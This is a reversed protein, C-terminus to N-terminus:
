RERRYIRGLEDNISPALQGVLVGSDLVIDTDTPLNPLYQNLVSYIAELVSQHTDLEVKRTNGLQAQAKSYDLSGMIADNVGEMTDLYGVGLGEAMYKGIDQFEESPSHIKLVKRVRKILKNSVKDSTELLSKLNGTLGKEIGKIVNKGAGKGSKNLNKSISAMKESYNDRLKNIQKVTSERIEKIQQNTTKKLEKNEEIAQKKALKNRKKYYKTYEKIEKKSLSNFAQVTSLGQVGMDEIEKYLKSNGLKKKLEKLGKMWDEMATSQSKMNFVLWDAQVNDDSEFAETLNFSGLINKTSDSVAKKYAERLQKIKDRNEKIAKVSSDFLEKALATGKEKAQKEAEKNKELGDALGKDVNQGISEAEKSPSHIKLVKKLGNIIGKGLGAVKEDLWKKGKMLGNWIGHIIQLGVDGITKLAKGINSLASKLMNIFNKAIKEKNDWLTTIISAIITLVAKRISAIIKPIAKVVGIFLKFFATMLKQMNSADLFFMILTEILQPLADVLSEIVTPLAEVLALLLQIGADLIMPIGNILFTVINNIIQPLAGVLQPLAQILGNALAMILKLAVDLLNTLLSPDTLRTALQIILTTAINLLTPLAQILGDSIATILQMGLQLLQEGQTALTEVLLPIMNTISEILKPSESMLTTLVTSIISTITGLLSPIANIIGQIMQMLIDMGLQVFQPLSSILYNNVKGLLDMFTKFLNPAQKMVSNIIAEVISGGVELVKPMGSSIKTVIEEIGKSIDALGKTDGTFLVALGDTVKTVSPLFEGMMRNKLGTLTMQMTTVSDKFVASATVTKDSMVMGYDEAIKMQEEIAGTGSNLLPGLDAGTRGLLQTALATRQAGKEMGALGKVTKEFLEEQSSNSVEEQSIGLKQFADSNKSAQQSLTKMGMKLSDVSTGARQMVYDWKQYSEASIGIKQSMKDVKDGYDATANVADGFKKSAVGVAVGVATVSATAIGIGKKMGSLGAQVGKIGKEYGTTDLSVKAFLDFVNM